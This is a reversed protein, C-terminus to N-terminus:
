PTAGQACKLQMEQLKGWHMVDQGMKESKDFLIGTTWVAKHVQGNQERQM